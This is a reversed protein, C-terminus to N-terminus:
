KKKKRKKPKGENWKQLLAYDDVAGDRFRYQVGTLSCCGHCLISTGKIHCACKCSLDHM